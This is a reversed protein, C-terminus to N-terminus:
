FEAIITQPIGLRTVTVPRNHYNDIILGPDQLSVIGFATCLGIQQWDKILVIEGPKLESVLLTEEKAKRKTCVTIM